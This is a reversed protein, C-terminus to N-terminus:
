GPYGTGSEVFCLSNGWPDDVYFSREGWPRVSIEGGPEGHVEETSLCVSPSRQAPAIAGLDVHAHHVASSVV